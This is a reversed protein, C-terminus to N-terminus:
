KRRISINKKYSIKMQQLAYWVANYAVGFEAARERILADPYEEVHRALAEWDLKGNRREVKIPELEERELWDYVCWRSVKFIKAADTKKGGQKIYEVVRKRLDVSYTM